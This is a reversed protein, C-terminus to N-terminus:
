NAPVVAHLPPGPLVRVELWVTILSAGLSSFGIFGLMVSSSQPRENADLCTTENAFCQRPNWPRDLTLAILVAVSFALDITWWGYGWKGEGQRDCARSADQRRHAVASRKCEVLM